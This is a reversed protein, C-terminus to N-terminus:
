LYDQHLLVHLVLLKSLSLIENSIWNYNIVVHALNMETLHKIDM